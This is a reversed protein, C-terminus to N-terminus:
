LIKKKKLFFFMLKLDGKWIIKIILFPRMPHIYNQNKYNLYTEIPKKNEM